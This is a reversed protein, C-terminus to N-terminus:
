LKAPTEHDPWEKVNLRMRIPSNKQCSKQGEIYKFGFKTYLYIATNNKNSVELSLASLRKNIADNICHQMLVKAIGKNMFQDSVSVNSIFGQKEDDLYIAVLGILNSESWAEFTVSNEFLKKAYTPIDLRDSLKPTHNKDCCWLHKLIEDHSASSTKYHILENSPQNNM